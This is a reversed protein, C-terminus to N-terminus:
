SHQSLAAERTHISAEGYISMYPLLLMHMVEYARCCGMLQLQSLYGKVVALKRGENVM